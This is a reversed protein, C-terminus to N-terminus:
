MTTVGCLPSCGPRPPPLRHFHRGQGQEQPLEPPLRPMQRHALGRPDGKNWIRFSTLVKHGRLAEWVM